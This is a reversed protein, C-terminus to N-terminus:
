NIFGTLDVAPFSHWNVDKKFRSLQLKTWKLEILHETNFWLAEIMVKLRESHIKRYSENHIYSIDRIYDQALECVRNTEELSLMRRKKPNINYINNAFECFYATRQISNMKKIKM